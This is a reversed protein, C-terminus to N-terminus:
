NSKRTPDEVKLSLSSDDRENATSCLHVESENQPGGLANGQSHFYIVMIYANETKEVIRYDSTM